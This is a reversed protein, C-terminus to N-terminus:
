STIHPYVKHGYFFINFILNKNTYYM